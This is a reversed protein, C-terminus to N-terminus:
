PISVALFRHHCGQFRHGSVPLVLTGERSPLNRGGAV